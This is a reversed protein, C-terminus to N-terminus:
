EKWKAKILNLFHLLPEIPLGKHQMSVIIKNENSRFAVVLPVIKLYAEEQTDFYERKDRLLRIEENLQYSENVDNKAENWNIKYNKSDHKFSDIVINESM